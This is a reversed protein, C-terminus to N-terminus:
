LTAADSAAIYENGDADIVLMYIWNNSVFHPFLARAGEPLNTIVRESGDMLDYLHLQHDAHSTWCGGGM